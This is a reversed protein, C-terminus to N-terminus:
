RKNKSKFPSQGYKEEYRKIAAAERKKRDAKQEPTERPVPQWKWPDCTLQHYNRKRM